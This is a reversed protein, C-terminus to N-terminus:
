RMENKFDVGIKLFLISELVSIKNGFLMFKHTVTSERKKKGVCM